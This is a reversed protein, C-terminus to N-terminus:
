NGWPETLQLVRKLADDAAAVNDPEGLLAEVWQNMGHIRRVEPLSSTLLSELESSKDEFDIDLYWLALVYSAIGQESKFGKSEALETAGALFQWRQEREIKHYDTLDRILVADLRELFAARAVDNVQETRIEM